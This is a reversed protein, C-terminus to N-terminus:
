HRKEVWGWADLGGRLIARVAFAADGVCAIPHGDNMLETVDDGCARMTEFWEHAIVGLETTHGAAVHVPALTTDRFGAVTPVIHVTVMVSSRVTRAVKVVDAGGVGHASGIVKVFLVPLKLVM